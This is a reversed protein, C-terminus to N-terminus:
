KRKPKKPPPELLGVMHTIEPFMDWAQSRKEAAAVAERVSTYSPKEFGFMPLLLRGTHGNINYWRDKIKITRSVEHSM